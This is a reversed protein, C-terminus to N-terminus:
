YVMRSILANRMRKARAMKMNPTGIIIVSKFKSLM